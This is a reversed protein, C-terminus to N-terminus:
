FPSSLRWSESVHHSVQKEPAEATEPQPFPILLHPQESSSSPTVPLRIPSTCSGALLCPPLRDWTAPQSPKGTAEASVREMEIEKIKLSFCTVTRQQTMKLSPWRIASYNCIQEGKETRHELKKEKKWTMFFQHAMARTSNKSLMRRWIFTPNLTHSYVCESVVTTMDLLQTM